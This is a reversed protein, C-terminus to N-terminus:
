PLGGLGTLGSIRRMAMRQRPLSINVADEADLPRLCCLRFPGTDFGPGADCFSRRCRITCRVRLGWPMRWLATKDFAFWFGTDGSSSM